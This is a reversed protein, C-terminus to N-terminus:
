SAAGMGTVPPVPAQHLLEFGRANHVYVGWQGVFVRRAAPFYRAQVQACALDLDEGADMLADGLQHIRAHDDHEAHALEAALDVRRQYLQVLRHCADLLAPSLPTTRRNRPM